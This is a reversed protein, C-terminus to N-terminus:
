KCWKSGRFSWRRMARAWGFIGASSMNTDIPEAAGKPWGNYYEFGQVATQMADNRERPKGGRAKYHERATQRLIELRQLDPMEDDSSLEIGTNRATSNTDLSTLGSTSASILDPLAYGKRAM